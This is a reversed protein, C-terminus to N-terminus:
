TTEWNDICKTEQKSEIRVWTIPLKCETELFNKEFLTKLKQPCFFHEGKLSLYIESDQSSSSTVFKVSHM